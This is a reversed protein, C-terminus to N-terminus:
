TVITDNGDLLISEQQFTHREEELITPSEILLTRYTLAVRYHNSKDGPSVKDCLAM